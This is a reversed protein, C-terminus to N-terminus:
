SYQRDHDPANLSYMGPRLSGNIDWQEVSSEPLRWQEPIGEMSGVAGSSNVGVMAGVSPDRDSATADARNRQLEGGLLFDGGEETDGGYLSDFTVGTDVGIGYDTYQDRIRDRMRYSQGAIIKDIDASHYIYNRLPGLPKKGIDSGCPKDADPTSPSASAATDAPAGEMNEQPFMVILLIVLVVMVALVLFATKSSNM